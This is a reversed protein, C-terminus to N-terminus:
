SLGEAAWAPAGGVPLADFGAALARENTSLHQRRYPPVSQHMGVVLSELRLLGTLAAFAGILVLSACLPAGLEDALETAPVTFVRCRTHDLEGRFLSSNLVVVSGSRLKAALPPWFAHHMAIASWTSAVIPPSVIPADGVIITSTTDGGRMTGGYTGLVMVHRDESAAGRALIQAALQISQGGIGTLM